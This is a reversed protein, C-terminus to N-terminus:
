EWAAKGFNIDDKDTMAGTVAGGAAGIAAGTLPDGTLAGVGAGAAGGLGAGSLTRDRTTNGCAAVFLALAMVSALRTYPLM